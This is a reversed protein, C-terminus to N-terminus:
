ASCSECITDDTKDQIKKKVTISSTFYDTSNNSPKSRCYYMGTKVGGKWGRTHLTLLDKKTPEAIFINFSSTQDVFRSRQIHLDQLITQPTEWVTRYKLKIKDDFEEPFNYDQISGEHKILHQVFDTTWLNNSNLENYLYKNTVIFSGSLVKRTYIMSNFMEFAENNGLFTASGATPMLAILMSNRLGHIKMQERLGEWDYISNKVINKHNFFSEEPEEWMDFQFLGQSAPSGIFTKYHGEKKALEISECVASYYITEFIEYNLKEVEPNLKLTYYCKDKNSYHLYHKFDKLWEESKIEKKRDPVVWSLDLLSILDALGQVGLGLPRDRLNTAEVQPVEKPYYNRDIVKNLNRIIQKTKQELLKRDLINKGNIKKVYKNLGISALNCSSIDGDKTVLAIEQCLNLTSISSINKQNSRKNVNDGFAIFPMGEHIQAQIIQNMLTEATTFKYVHSPLDGNLAKQELELYQKEFKEGYLNYLKNAYKPCILFWRENNELRKMFLDCIWLSYFLDKATVGENGEKKRADIFAEVNLHHIAITCTISGNRKGGNHAVCNSTIFNREDEETTDIVLDFVPVENMEEKEVTFECSHFNCKFSSKILEIFFNKTKLKNLSSLSLNKDMWNILNLKNDFLHFPVTTNLNINSIDGHPFYNKLINLIRNKIEDSETLFNISFRNNENELNFNDSLFLDILDILDENLDFEKEKQKNTPIIMRSGHYNKLDEVSEFRIDNTTQILIPHGESVITSEKIGNLESTIKYMQNKSTYKLVNELRKNVIRKKTESFVSVEDNPNLSNIKKFGSPTLIPTEGTFCQNIYNAIANLVKLYKVVGDAKEGKNIESCRLASVDVGQGMCLSSLTSTVKFSENISMKSDNLTDEVSMLVCSAMQQKKLGANFLTPTAHTYFKNSLDRYVVQIEKLSSEILNEENELYLTTAVRMFLDQPTEMTIRKNKEMVKLLYSKELTELAFLNFTNNLKYNVMQNLEQSYKQVFNYYPKNLHDKIKETVESFSLNGRFLMIEAMKIRGAFLEWQQSSPVNMAAAISVDQYMDKLKTFNKIKLLTKDLLSLDIENFEKEGAISLITNQIYTFKDTEFEM